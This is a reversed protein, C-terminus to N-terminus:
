FKGSGAMSLGVKNKEGKQFFKMRERVSEREEKIQM